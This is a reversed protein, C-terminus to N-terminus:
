RKSSTLRNFAEVVARSRSVPRGGLQASLASALTDAARLTSEPVSVTMRVLPDQENFNNRNSM